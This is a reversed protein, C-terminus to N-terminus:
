DKTFQLNYYGTTDQLYWLYGTTIQILRNRYYGTTAQLIMFHWLTGYWAM